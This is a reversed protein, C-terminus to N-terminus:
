NASQPHQSSFLMVRSGRRELALPGRLTAVGAQLGIGGGERGVWVREKRSSGKKRTSVDRV